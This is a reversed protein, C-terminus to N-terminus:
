RRRRRGRDHAGAARRAADRGARPPRELLESLERRTDRFTIALTALWLVTVLGLVLLLLRGQLSRPVLRRM